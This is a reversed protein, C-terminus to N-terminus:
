DNSSGGGQRSLQRTRQMLEDATAPRREPLPDVLDRALGLIERGLAGPLGAEAERWPEDQELLVAGQLAQHGHLPPRGLIMELLMVGCAYLDVPPGSGRGVRQEPAMYIMSGEAGAVEDGAGVHAIGFDTLVLSDPDDPRRLLLNSPKLDRHVVGCRHVLDLIQAVLGLTALARSAPLPLVTSLTGGPCYEMVVMNLQEDLDYITIIRPNALAGAIRAECFLHERAGAARSVHPHLVKLAVERKLRRDAALYVTGSGGRGLERKIIYRSSEGLDQVGLLTPAPRAQRAENIRRRLDDARPRARPHSFDHALVAEYHVLAQRAGSEGGIRRAFDEGLAMHVEVRYDDSNALIEKLLPVAREEQGLGLFLRALQLRVGHLDARLGLLRELRVAAELERGAGAIVEALDVALTGVQEDEDPDLEGSRVRQILQDLERNPKPQDAPPPDM